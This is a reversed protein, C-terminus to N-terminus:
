FLPLILVPALNALIITFPITLASLIAWWWRPFRRIVLYVGHLVPLGLALGVATAKTQEAAWARRSQNTLGYQQEVVWGGYFSLPLSALASLLAAALGYPVEPGLRRPAIREARGRLWGSFGSLLAVLNILTTWGMGVLVLVERLRNYRLAREHEREDAYLGDGGADNAAARRPTAHRHGILLLLTLGSLFPILARTPRTRRM